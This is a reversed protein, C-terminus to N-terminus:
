DGPLMLMGELEAYRRRLAERLSAIRGDFSLRRNTDLPVTLIEVMRDKLIDIIEVESLDDEKGTVRIKKVKNTGALRLAGRIDAILQGKIISGPSRGMSVSVSVNPAHFGEMLNALANGSLGMDRFDQYNEVGAVRIDFSRIVSMRSVRQFAEAQLIPDFFIFGNINGKKKLYYALKSPSVGFRNRQIVLVRMPVNYIFATEEGLGEDEELDFPGISGVSLSARLPVEDLRIRIMEGGVLDGQSFAQQLRVLVGRVDENRSHDNPLGLVTNIIQEFTLHASEPMEVRYFDIKIQAM